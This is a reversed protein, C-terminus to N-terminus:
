IMTTAYRGGYYKHLSSEISGYEEDFLKTYEESDLISVNDDQSSSGFIYISSQDGITVIAVLNYKENAFDWIETYQNILYFPFIIFLNKPLEKKIEDFEKASGFNGEILRDCYYAVKPTDDAFIVDTELSNHRVFWGAAKYGIRRGYNAGYPIDLETTYSRSTYFLPASAPYIDYQLFTVYINWVSLSLLCVVSVTAFVKIIKLQAGKIRNKAFFYSKKIGFSALIVLPALLIYTYSPSPYIFFTLPIFYSLFWTVFFYLKWNRHWLSILVGWILVFYFFSPSYRLWIRYMFLNFYLSPLARNSTSAYGIGPPVLDTLYPALIWPIFFPLIVLVLTTLSILLAKSELSHEYRKQLILYILPIAMFIGVHHSLLTLGFFLAAFGSDKLANTKYFKISYYATLLSFLLFLGFWQVHRSFAIFYGTIAALLAAIQGEMTGFLEKAIKHFILVSVVGSFLYPIRAVFETVGFFVLVPIHATIEMPPHHHRLIISLTWFNVVDDLFPTRRYDAARVIGLAKAVVLVEDGTFESYGINYFRLFFALILIAILISKNKNITWM